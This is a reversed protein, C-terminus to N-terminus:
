EYVCVFIFCYCVIANYILTIVFVFLSIRYNLFSHSQM